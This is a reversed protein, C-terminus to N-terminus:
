GPSFLLKYAALMLVVSLIYRLAIQRFRLAGFYAGSVGGVLVIIIYIPMNDILHISHTLQGALGAIANVFIFLACIAATQKQDAWKFLILVPALIVGGGIGLLGSVFGICGGIIMSIIRNFEKVEEDKINRFFLFRVIPIILLLGLTKKYIAANVDISGGIFSLPISSIALSWFLSSKFHKGRFFQIFSTISVFLDLFLATPRMVIASVGFLAPWSPWTDVQAGMALRRM